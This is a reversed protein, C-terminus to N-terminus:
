TGKLSQQIREYSNLLTILSEAPMDRTINGLIGYGEAREEVESDSLDTVTIVSTMPSAMVFAKMLDIPDEGEMSHGVLALDFFTDKSAGLAKNGSEFRTTEYPRGELRGQIKDWVTKDEELVMVKIKADANMM